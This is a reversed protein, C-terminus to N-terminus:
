VERGTLHGHIELCCRQLNHFLVPDGRLFSHWHNHRDSGANPNLGYKRCVGFLRQERDRDHKPYIVEVAHGGVDGFLQIRKEIREWPKRTYFPHNYTSIGSRGIAYVVWELEAPRIFAWPEVYAKREGHTGLYLEMIERVDDPGSDSEAVTLGVAQKGFHHAHPWRAKLMEWSRDPGEHSPDIDFKLLNSFMEKCYGEFDQNQNYDLVKKMEPEEPDVWHAGIHEIDYGDEDKVTACIEGAPIVYIGHTKSLRSCEELPPVFDHDTIALNGVGATRALRCVEDPSQYGDSFYTHTHGDYCAPPACCINTKEM